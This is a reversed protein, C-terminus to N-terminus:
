NSLFVQFDNVSYQLPFNPSSIINDAESTTIQENTVDIRFIMPVCKGETTWRCDGHCWGKGVWTDGDYPCQSCDVASHQGCSVLRTRTTPPETTASWIALFGTRTNVSSTIFRVYNTNTIISFPTSIESSTGIEGCYKEGEIKM